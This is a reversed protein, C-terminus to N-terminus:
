CCSVWQGHKKTVKALYFASAALLSPLLGVFNEDVLTAEILYMALNETVRCSNTTCLRRLFSIPDPWDLNFALCNLMVREVAVIDEITYGLKKGVYQISTHPTINIFKAAIIMATTGVLKLHESPTVMVAFFRDIYNAALFLTEPLLSFQDHVEVLWNMLSSRMSWQFKTETQISNQTQMIAEPDLKM